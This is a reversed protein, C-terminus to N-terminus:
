QRQQLRLKINKQVESVNLYNELMALGLLSYSAMYLLDGYAYPKIGELWQDGYIAFSIDAILMLLFSATMIKWFAALKGGKYENAVLIAFLSAIVLALDGLGYSMYVTNTLADASPDYAQYLLFYGVLGTLIISISIVIAITLLSKKFTKLNIGAAVFGQYIGAAFFPYALLYFVDALSTSLDVHMFHELVWFMVEAVAWCVTGGTIFLLARGNASKLGYMRLAYLGILASGVVDTLGIAQIAVGRTNSSLIYTVVWALFIALFIIRVIKIKM